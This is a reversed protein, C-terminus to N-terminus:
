KPRLEVTVEVSFDEGIARVMGGEKSRSIEKMASLIKFM